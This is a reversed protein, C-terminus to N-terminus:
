GSGQNIDEYSQVIDINGGIKKMIWKWGPYPDSTVSWLIRSKVTKREKAM